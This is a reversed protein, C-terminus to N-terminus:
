EDAGRLPTRELPEALLMEKTFILDSRNYDSMEYDHGMTIADFPCAIECYGCFICRSLNIEYV